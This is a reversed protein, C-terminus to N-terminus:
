SPYDLRGRVLMGVQSLWVDVLTCRQRLEMLVTVRCCYRSNGSVPADVSEVGKAAAAAAIEEALAPESTTMDIVVGGPRLGQLLSRSLV